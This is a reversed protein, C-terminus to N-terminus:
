QRPMGSLPWHDADPATMLLEPLSFCVSLQCKIKKVNILNRFLEELFLLQSSVRLDHVINDRKKFYVLHLFMPASKFDAPSWFLVLSSLIQPNYQTAIKSFQLRTEGMM